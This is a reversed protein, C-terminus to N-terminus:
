RSNVYNTKRFEKNLTGYEPMKKVDEWEGPGKDAPFGMVAFIRDLQDHHYPNNTKIDEQRYSSLHNSQWSESDLIFGKRFKFKFM